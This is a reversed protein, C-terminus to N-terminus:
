TTYLMGPVIDAFVHEKPINRIFISWETQEKHAGGLELSTIGSTVRDIEALHLATINKIGEDCKGSIKINWLAESSKFLHFEARATEELIGAAHLLQAVRKKLLCIAVEPALQRVMTPTSASHPPKVNREFPTRRLVRPMLATFLTEPPVYDIILWFNGADAYLGRIATTSFLKELKCLNGSNIHQVYCGPECELELRFYSVEQTLIDIYTYARANYQGSNGLM